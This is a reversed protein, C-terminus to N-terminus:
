KLARVWPTVDGVASWVGSADTQLWAPGYFYQGHRLADADALLEQSVRITRSGYTYADLVLQERKPEPAIGLAAAGVGTGFLFCFARRTMGRQARQCLRDAGHSEGCWQCSM